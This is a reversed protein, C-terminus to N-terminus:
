AEVEFEILEVQTLPAEIASEGSIPHPTTIRIWPLMCYEGNREIREFTSGATRWYWQGNGALKASMIERKDSLWDSV